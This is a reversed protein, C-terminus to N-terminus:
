KPGDKNKLSFILALVASRLQEYLFFLAGLFFLVFIYKEARGAIPWIAALFGDRAVHKFNTL